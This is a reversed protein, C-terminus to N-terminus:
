RAKAAIKRLRREATREAANRRDQDALLEGVSRGQATALEAALSRDPPSLEAFDTPTSDLVDDIIRSVTRANLM